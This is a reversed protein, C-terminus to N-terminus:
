SSLACSLVLTFKNLHLHIKTLKILEDMNSPNTMFCNYTSIIQLVNVSFCNTGIRRVRKCAM